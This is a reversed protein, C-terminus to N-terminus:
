TSPWLTSPPHEGQAQHGEMPQLPGMHLSCLAWPNHHFAVRRCGRVAERRDGPKDLEQFTDQTVQDGGGLVANAGEICEPHANALSGQSPAM